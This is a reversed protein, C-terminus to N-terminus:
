LKKLLAVKKSQLKEIAQYLPFRVSANDRDNFVDDKEICVADFLKEQTVFPKDSPNKREALKIDHRTIIRVKCSFEGINIVSHNGESQIEAEDFDFFDKMEKRAPLFYEDNTKIEEDGGIFLVNILEEGFALNGGNTMATFARKFDKMKPERLYATKDDVPLEYVSGYKTKWENIQKDSIAPKLEKTNM